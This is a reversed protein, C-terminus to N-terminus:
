LLVTKLLFDVSYIVSSSYIRLLRKCDKYNNAHTSPRVKHCLLFILSNLHQSVSHRTSQQRDQRLLPPVECVEPRCSYCESIKGLTMLQEQSVHLCIILKSFGCHDTVEKKLWHPIFTANKGKSSVGLQPPCLVSIRVM